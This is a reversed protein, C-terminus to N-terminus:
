FSPKIQKQIIKYIENMEQIYNEIDTEYDDELFMDPIFEQVYNCDRCFLIVKNEDIIKPELLKHGSNIGCTLPHFVPNKQYDYIRDFIINSDTIM